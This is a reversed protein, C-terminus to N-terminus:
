YWFVDALSTQDEPVSKELAMELMANRNRLSGVASEIAMDIAETIEGAGIRKVHGLDADIERQECPADVDDSVRVPAHVRLHDNLVSDLSIPDSRVPAKALM